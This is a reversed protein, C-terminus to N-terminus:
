RGLGVQFRVRTINYKGVELGLRSLCNTMHNCRSLVFRADEHESESRGATVLVTLREKCVPYKESVQLVRHLTGKM